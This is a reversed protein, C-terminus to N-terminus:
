CLYFLNAGEVLACGGRQQLARSATQVNDLLEQGGSDLAVCVAVCCQAPSCQTGEGLSSFHVIPLPQQLAPAAGAGADGGGGGGGGGVEERV